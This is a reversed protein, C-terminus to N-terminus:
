VAAPQQRAERVRDRIATYGLERRILGIQGVHYTEHWGLFGVVGRVTQDPTPYGAPAPKLLDEATLADLAAALKEATQNWGQILEPLSPYGTGDTASADGGFLEKYPNETTKGLTKLIGHRSSALHGVLFAISSGEGNRTRYLADEPRLDELALHVVESNFALTNALPYVLDNM